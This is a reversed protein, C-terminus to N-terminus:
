FVASVTIGYKAILIRYAGINKVEVTRLGLKAYLDIAGIMRTVSTNGVIGHAVGPQGVHANM